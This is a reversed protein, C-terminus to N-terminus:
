RYNANCYPQRDNKAQQYMLEINKSLQLQEEVEKDLSTVRNNMKFARLAAEAEDLRGDHLHMLGRNYWAAALGPKLEIARTLAKDAKRRDGVMILGLGLDSWARANGHDLDVAQELHPLAHEFDENMLLLHGIGAEVRSDVRGEEALMAAARGLDRLGRETM